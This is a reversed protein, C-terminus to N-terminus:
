ALDGTLVVRSRARSVGVYLMRAIQNGSNCRAIDDLDIYVADHTSGQAKNITNAFVARLDIWSETIGQMVVHEDRERALKLREKAAKVSFPRFASVGSATYWAGPVEYQETPASIDEILVLQDTKLSQKKIQIYHNNVAYDGAVFHSVGKKHANIFENYEIVKKNTWALVKSQNFSWDERGFEKLVAENFEDRGMHTIAVGDPKFQFFEGTNVTHRFKTSLEIIPNGEAQRVVQNLEVTKFGANFVPASTAKFQILQAPDGIFVIKCKFTQKFVMDLLESDIYSAEDIFILQGTPTSKGGRPRLETAGTKYNTEVSLGLVAHITKCDMGTIMHLNEAAKNTTATLEVPWTVFDPDVMRGVAFYKPLRDIISRVLTSKGCGSYGQIVFVMEEPDALFEFFSDLGAQQDASLQINDINLAEM